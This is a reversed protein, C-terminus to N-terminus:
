SIVPEGNVMYTSGRTFGPHISQAVYDFASRQMDIGNKLDAVMNRAYMSVNVASESLGITDGTHSDTILYVRRATDHELQFRM